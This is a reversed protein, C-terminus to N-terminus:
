LAARMGDPQVLGLGATPRPRRAGFDVGVLVRRGGWCGLKLAVVLAADRVEDAFARDDSARAIVMGGVCLAAIALASTRNPRGDSRSGRQLSNVM